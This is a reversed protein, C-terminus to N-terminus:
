GSTLPVSVFVVGWGRGKVMYKCMGTGYNYVCCEVLIMSYQPQNSRLAFRWAIAM